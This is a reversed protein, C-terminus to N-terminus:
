AEKTALLKTGILRRHPQVDVVLRTADNEM